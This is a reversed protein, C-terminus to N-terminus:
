RRPRECRMVWVRGLAADQEIRVWRFGAAEVARVAQEKSVPVQLACAVALTTAFVEDALAKLAAAGAGRGRHAELAIFIVCEWTGSDHSAGSRGGGGVLAADLAHAYGIPEDDGWIIRCLASPSSLALAIEAEARNRTGWWALVTPLGLWARLRAHDGPGLPELRL